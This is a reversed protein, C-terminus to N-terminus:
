KTGGALSVEFTTLLGGPKVPVHIPRALMMPCIASLAVALELSLGPLGGHIINADCPTFAGVLKPAIDPKSAL